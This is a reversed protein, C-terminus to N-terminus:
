WYMSFSRPHKEFWMTSNAYRKGPLTCNAVPLSNLILPATYPFQRKQSEVSIAFCCVLKLWTNCSYSQVRDQAMFGWFWLIHLFEQPQSYCTACLNDLGEVLCFTVWPEFSLPATHSLFVKHQQIFQLHNPILFIKAPTAIPDLNSYWLRCTNLLLVVTNQVNIVQITINKHSPKQGHRSGEEKGGVWKNDRTERHIHLHQM